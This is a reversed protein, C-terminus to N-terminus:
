PRRPMTFWYGVSLISWRNFLHYRLTFVPAMYARLPKGLQIVIAQETQDVTFVSLSVAFIIILAVIVGLKGKTKM